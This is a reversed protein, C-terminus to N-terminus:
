NNIVLFMKKGNVIEDIGGEPIDHIANLLTQYSYKYGEGNKTGPDNTIFNKNDYGTIVLMHYLPGPQRFYKNGLLRGAAPIIIPKNNSIFYKITDITVDASVIKIDKYGFYNELIVSVEKVDSDEFHGLNDKEWEILDLIEKTSTEKNFTKNQLYYHAMIMSAEECSEKFLENWDAKPAQSTFPVKMKYETPINIAIEKNKVQLDQVPKEIIKITEDIKKETKNDGNSKQFSVNDRNDFDDDFVIENFSNNIMNVDSIVVINETLPNSKSLLFFGAIILLVFFIIWILYKNKIM